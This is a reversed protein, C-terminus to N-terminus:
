EAKAAIHSRLASITEAIWQRGVDSFTGRELIENTAFDLLAILPARSEADSVLQDLFVVKGPFFGEREERFFQTWPHDAGFCAASREAMKEVYAEVAGNSGWFVQENIHFGAGM